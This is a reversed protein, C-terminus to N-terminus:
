LDLETIGLVVGQLLHKDLDVALLDSEELTDLPEFLADRERFQGGAGVLDADKGGGHKSLAERAGLSVLAAGCPGPLDPEFAAFFM